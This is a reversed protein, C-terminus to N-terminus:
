GMLTMGLPEVVIGKLKIEDHARNMDKRYRFRIEMEDNLKFM